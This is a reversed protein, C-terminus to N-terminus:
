PPNAAYQQHALFYSVIEPPVSTFRVVFSYRNRESREIVKAYFDKVALEEYVGRLNMKLNSFLAVSKDFAIEASKKSLKVVLGESSKEGVGKGEFITYKLPIRRSLTVIELNEMELALNYKGAIGGIEYIRLPVESGKPLVEWQGDIRLVEGAKKRVSESILIQGGV